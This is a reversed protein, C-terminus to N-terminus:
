EGRFKKIVDIYKSNDEIKDLVDDIINLGAEREYQSLGGLVDNILTWEEQDFLLELFQNCEEPNLNKPRRKGEVFKDCVWDLNVSRSVVHRDTPIGFLESYGITGNMILILTKKRFGRYKRLVSDNVQMYWWDMGPVSNNNDDFWEKLARLVLITNAACYYQCSCSWYLVTLTGQDITLWQKLSYNKFIHHHNFIHDFLPLVNDDSAGQCARLTIINKVLRMACENCNGCGSYNVQNVGVAKVNHDNKTCISNSNWLYYMWERRISIIYEIECRLLIFHLLYLDDKCSKKYAKGKRGDCREKFNILRLSRAKNKKLGHKKKLKIEYSEMQKNITRVRGEKLKIRNDMIDDRDEFKNRKSVRESSQVDHVDLDNVDKDFKIHDEDVKLNSPQQQQQEEQYQVLLNNDNRKELLDPFSVDPFANNGPCADDVSVITKLQNDLLESSIINPIVASEIVKLGFSISALLTRIMGGERTKKEDKLKKRLQHHYSRNYKKEETNFTVLRYVRENKNLTGYSRLMRMRFEPKLDQQTLMMRANLRHVAKAFEEQSQPSQSDLYFRMNIDNMAFEYRDFTYVGYHDVLGENYSARDFNM